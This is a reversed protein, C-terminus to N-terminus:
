SENNEETDPAAGYVVEVGSPRPAEKPKHRLLERVKEKITPESKLMQRLAVVGGDVVLDQDPLYIVYRSKGQKVLYGYEKAREELAASDDVGEGYVVSYEGKGLKCRVNNKVIRFGVTHGIEQGASNLTPKRGLYVIVKSMYGLAYGGSMVTASGYGTMNAKEQAIIIFVVGPDSRLMGRGYLRALLDDILKARRAMQANGESGKEDLTDLVAKPVLGNISDLIVCDILGTPMRKNNDYLYADITDVLREAHDRAEVIMTQDKNLGVLNAQQLFHGETNIYLVWGGQKQVESAVSLALSTKGSGTVGRITTVCNRVFGGGLAENLEPVNTPVYKPVMGEVVDAVVSVLPRPDQSAKRYNTNLGEAIRRIAARRDDSM